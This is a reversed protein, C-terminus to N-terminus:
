PRRQRNEKVTVTRLQLPTLTYYVGRSILGEKSPGRMRRVVKASNVAKGKRQENRATKEKM